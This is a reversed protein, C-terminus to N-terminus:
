GCGCSSRTSTSVSSPAATPRSSAPWARVPRRGADAPHGRPTAAMSFSPYFAFGAEIQELPQEDKYVMLQARREVRDSKSEMTSGLFEIEYSGLAAASAPPSPFTRRCATSPRLGDRRLGGARHRPARHLRRLATPQSAVLRTFATFYNEGRSHRVRAGKVWERLIGAAAIGCVGFALAPLLSRAGLGVALAAVIVGVIIPFRLLRLLGGGSARRWPLLPGVGMLAVLALFLPGAIIDFYPRGVTVTVGQFVDTVLPYVVGWLTVLAIMLFLVNNLLFAAERSLRSELPAASRLRNYRWFFVAFAGILNVGLFILFVWGMTSQGSPTSPPYPGGRNMFMGYM